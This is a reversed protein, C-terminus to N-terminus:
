VGWAKSRAAVKAAMEEGEGLKVCSGACSKGRSRAM